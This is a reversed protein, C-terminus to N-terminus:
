LYDILINNDVLHCRAPGNGDPFNEQVLYTGAIAILEAQMKQCVVESQERGQAGAIARGRLTGYIHINGDAVVEAGASVQNMILLNADRAYVQQGSRIPTSIVQTKRISEAQEIPAGSTKPNVGSRPEVWAMNMSFALAQHRERDGTLAFPILKESRCGVIIAKLQAPDVEGELASLDLVTPAYLFLAPAKRLTDVLLSQFDAVVLSTVPIQHSTVRRSRLKFPTKIPSNM